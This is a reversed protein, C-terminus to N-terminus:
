NVLFGRCSIHTRGWKAKYVFSALMNQKHELTVESGLNDYNKLVCKNELQLQAGIAGVAPKRGKIGTTTKKM